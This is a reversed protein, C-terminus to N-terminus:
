KLYMTDSLNLEAFYFLNKNPFFWVIKNWDFRHKQENM